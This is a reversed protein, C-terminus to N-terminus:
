FARIARVRRLSAKNNEIQNGDLFSQIWAFGAIDYESSSWYADESIGGIADKQLYLLNLEEKNPLFGDTQGNPWVYNAAVGAASTAGCEAVILPTNRSGSNPDEDGSTPLNEVGVIDAPLAPCWIVGTSQDVPAAELAHFGSATVHFVLGGGPGVDGIVYSKRTATTQVSNDPFTVGQESITVQAHASSVTMFTIGLLGAGALVVFTFRKTSQSTM